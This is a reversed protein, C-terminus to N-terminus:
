PLMATKEAVKSRTPPEFIIAFTAGPILQKLVQLHSVADNRRRFRAVIVQQSNPLSRVICWPHLQEIYTM